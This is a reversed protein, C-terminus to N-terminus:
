GKTGATPSSESAARSRKELDEVTVLRGEHQSEAAKLRALYSDLDGGCEKWLRERVEHIERVIPDDIM